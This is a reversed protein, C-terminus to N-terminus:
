RVQVGWKRSDREFFRKSKILDRLLFRSGMLQLGYASGPMVFLGGSKRGLSWPAGIGIHDVLSGSDYPAIVGVTTIGSNSMNSLAFDIARYSGAIPEAAIARKDSLERMRSNNGGALIIGVARM